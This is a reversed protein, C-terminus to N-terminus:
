QSVGQLVDQVDKMSPMRMSFKEYGWPIEFLADEQKGPRINRYELSWSGDVAATKVPISLGPIFWQYVTETRNGARLVVKFKDAQRGDVIERGAPSREV